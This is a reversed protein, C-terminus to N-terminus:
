IHSLEVNPIQTTYCISSGQLTAGPAEANRSSISIDAIPLPRHRHRHCQADVLSELNELTGYVVSFYKSWCHIEIIQKRPNNTAHQYYDDAFSRHLFRSAPAQLPSSTPTVPQRLSTPQRLVRM